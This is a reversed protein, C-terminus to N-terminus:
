MSPSPVVVSLRKIQKGTNQRSKLMKLCQLIDSCWLNVRKWSSIVGRATAQEEAATVLEFWWSGSREVLKKVTILIDSWPPRSWRRQKSKSLVDKRRGGAASIRTPISSLIRISAKVSWEPSQVQESRGPDPKNEGKFRGCPWSGSDDFLDTDQFM